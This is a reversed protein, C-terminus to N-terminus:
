GTAANRGSWRAFLARNPCLDVTEPAEASQRYAAGCAEVQRCSLCTNVAHRVAVAGALGAARSWDVEHRQAMWGFLVAHEEFWRTGLM